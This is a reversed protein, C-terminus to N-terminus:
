ILVDSTNRYGYAFAKVWGLYVKYVVNDQWKAVTSRLLTYKRIFMSSHRTCATVLM